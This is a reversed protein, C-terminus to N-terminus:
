NLNIPAVTKVAPPRNFRENSVATQHPSVAPEAANTPNNNKRLGYESDSKKCSDLNSFDRVGSFHGSNEKNTKQLTSQIMKARDIKLVPSEIITNM